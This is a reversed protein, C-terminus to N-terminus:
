GPDTQPKKTSTVLHHAGSWEQSEIIFGGKFGYMAAWHNAYDFYLSFTEPAIYNVHTPDRFAADKPYAPTYSLFIGDRKLVRYIENMLEVFCMRRNPNYILRPITQLVDYATIFDFHNDPFPIPEIALDVAIVNESACLDIGIVEDANFPNKPKIGSGLDLAITM